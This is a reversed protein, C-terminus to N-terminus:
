HLWFFNWRLNDIFKKRIVGIMPSWIAFLLFIIRNWSETWSISELDFFDIADLKLNVLTSITFFM